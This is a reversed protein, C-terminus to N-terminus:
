KTKRDARKECRSEIFMFITVLDAAIAIVDLIMLAVEM